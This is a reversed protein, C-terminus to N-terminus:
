RMDYGGRLWVGAGAGGGASSFNFYIFLYFGSLIIDDIANGTVAVGGAVAEDM